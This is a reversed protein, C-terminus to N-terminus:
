LDRRRQSLAGNCTMVVPRRSEAILAVVAPWFTAEEEFLIDVEEILILSQRFKSEDRFPTLNVSSNRLRPPPTAPRDPHDDDVEIPEGQSGPPPAEGDDDHKSNFFTKLGRAPSEVEKEKGKGVMHNKGVDGVLSMLNGGTRKGIGPYVEFVEWGLENAAAYVAASKGTGSPGTLLISNALYASLPTYWAPRHGLPVHPEEYPEPVEDRDIEEEPEGFMGIDDVIWDDLQRRKKPVRRVVRRGGADQNGVSLASLWDRLYTAETTNGLVESATRPRYRESYTERNGAPMKSLRPRTAQSRPRSTTETEARSLIGQWFAPDNSASAPRPVRPRRPTSPGAHPHEEFVNVRQAWEGRPWPAPWEEGEKVGRGWGKKLDGAKTATGSSKFFNHVQKAPKQERSIIPEASTSNIDLETQTPAPSAAKSAEVSTDRSSTAQNLRGFFSHAPKADSAFAYKKPGPKSQAPVEEVDIADRHTSGRLSATSGTKARDPRDRGNARNLASASAGTVVVDNPSSSRVVEIDPSVDRATSTSRTGKRSKITSVAVANRARGRKKSPSPTPGHSERSGEGLEDNSGVPILVPRRGDYPSEGDDDGTMELRGGNSEGAQVSGRGRGNRGRNTSTGARANSAKVKKSMEKMEDEEGGARKGAKAKGKGKDSAAGTSGVSATDHDQRRGVTWSSAGNGNLVIRGQSPGGTKEQPKRKRKAPEPKDTAVSGSTSTSSRLQGGLFAHITRPKPVSETPTSVATDPTEVSTGGDEPASM